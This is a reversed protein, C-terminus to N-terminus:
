KTLIVTYKVLVFPETCVTSKVVFIASSVPKLIAPEDPPLYVTKEYV